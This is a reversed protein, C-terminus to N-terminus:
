EIVEFTVIDNGAEVGDYYIIIEKEGPTNTHLTLTVDHNGKTLSKDYVIQKTDVDVYVVRVKTTENTLSLLLHKEISYKEEEGNSIYLTIKQGDEMEKDMEPEHYVVIDKEYGSDIQIIEIREAEVDVSDLLYIAETITRGIINPMIPITTDQQTAIWINIKEGIPIETGAKPEQRVIYENPLDAVEQSVDGVFFGTEEIVLIADTFSINLIDPVAFLEPGISVKINIYIGDDVMQGSKPSQLVVVGEAYADDVAYEVIYGFGNDKLIKAAEELLMKEVNPVELKQNSNEQRTDNNITALVVIFAVIVIVIGLLIGGIAKRIKTVAEGNHGEDINNNKLSESEYFGIDTIENGEAVENKLKEDAKKEIYKELLEKKIVPIAKTDGEDDPEFVFDGSPDHRSAILDDKLEQVSQYRLDKHKNSAKMIIKNLAASLSHNKTMPSPLGDNVHKLAITVPTDGKFPLTGTLMEYMVIGLSYIDTTHDVVNGMAQEPSMYHVSGIVNSGGMTMTASTTMKAIGFDGVKVLGEKDILINQSKIDRHVLKQHHCYIMADCVQMAIEVAEEESLIGKMRIYEKLTRGNVYEMVIYPYGGDIDVDFTNVMNKHRVVKAIEAEKEFMIVFEKNDIYEEKLMKIAIIEKTEVNEGKYVIAMGGKGIVSHIAYKNNLIRQEM